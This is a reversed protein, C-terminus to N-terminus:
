YGKEFAICLYQKRRNRCFILTTKKDIKTSVRASDGRASSTKYPYIPHFFPYLRSCFFKQKNFLCNGQQNALKAM